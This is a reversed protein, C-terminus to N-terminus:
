DDTLKSVTQGQVPNRPSKPAEADLQGVGQHGLPQHLAVREKLIQVPPHHALHEIGSV